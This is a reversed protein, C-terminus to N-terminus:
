RLAHSNSGSGNARRRVAAAAGARAVRRGRCVRVANIRTNIFEAVAYSRRVVRENETQRHGDSAGCLLACAAAGAAARRARGDARGSDTAGASRAVRAGRGRCPRSPETVVEEYREIVNTM